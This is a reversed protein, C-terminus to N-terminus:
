EEKATNIQIFSNTSGETAYLNTKKGPQTSFWLGTLEPNDNIQLDDLIEGEDNLVSILGHKSIEAFDFRAVYLHGRDNMALATPGLRGSFQHFV